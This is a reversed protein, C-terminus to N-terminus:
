SVSAAIKRRKVCIGVAALSMLIRTAPEPVAILTVEGTTYLNTTDWVYPSRITFQERPTVGTWDFLRLTRGVQTAVNVDEAFELELTGGLQVPIGPEFMVVSNWPDADLVPQLISGESMSLRDHITVPIPPRPGLWLDFVNSFSPPQQPVDPPLGDDNRVLLREGATLVLGAIRGDPLITNRAVAEALNLDHAGRADAGSFDANLLESRDFTADALNQGAFSWGGLDNDHLRVGALDGSRYSATSYLQEKTFGNSTANRLSAGKVIAGTLDANILTAGGLKAGTLDQDSFDWGTLDTSAGPADVGQFNFPEWGALGIGRLDKAQYSATSYLQEKSLGRSSTTSFDVASVIAGTLNVDSLTATALSAGTLDQGSFDWGTLDASVWNAAVWGGSLGIGRLNKTQYNATSYVQERTLSSANTNSVVAGALNANTLTADYFIAGTLNQGSFDWGTLDLQSFRIGRLDKAQYSATSYLQQKTLTGSTWSEFNAGTIVAGSLNAHAITAVSLNANTLNQGSLDWGTLDNFGLGIGRLDKAQYSETSYLQQSTLGASNFNTGTVIASTFVAGTLTSNNLTARSLNAESFDAYSLGASRFNTGTVIAGTFRAGTLTANGLNADGLNADVFDAYSLNRNHLQAHPAPEIGQTGPIVTGTDWRYIDGSAAGCRLVAVFLSACTM